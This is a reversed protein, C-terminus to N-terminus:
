GYQLGLLFAIGFGSAAPVNAGLMRLVRNAIVNLDKSTVKGDGDTDLHTKITRDLTSLDPLHKDEVVGYHRALQIGIFGIGFTLAALRGLKKVAYGSSFGAVVGLGVEVGFDPLLAAFDIEDEPTAPKGKSSAALVRPDSAVAASTAAATKEDDEETKTETDATTVETPLDGSADQEMCLAACLM